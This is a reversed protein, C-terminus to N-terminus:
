KEYNKVEEIFKEVKSIYKKSIFEKNRIKNLVFTPGMNYAAFALEIDNFIELMKKFYYAGMRLNYRCDFLLEESFPIQLERAIEKGVDPNIQVIGIAGKNSVAFRRFSSEVYALAYIVLPDIGGDRALNNIEDCCEGLCKRMLREFLVEEKVRKSFSEKLGGGERLAIATERPYSLFLFLLLAYGARRISRSNRGSLVSGKESTRWM